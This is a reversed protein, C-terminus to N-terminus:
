EREYDLCVEIFMYWNCVRIIGYFFKSLYFFIDSEIFFVLVIDFEIERIYVLM